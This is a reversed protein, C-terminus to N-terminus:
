LLFLGGGYGIMPEAPEIEVGYIASLSERVRFGSSVSCNGRRGQSSIRQRKSELEGDRIQEGGIIMPVDAQHNLM